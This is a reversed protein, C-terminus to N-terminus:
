RWASGVQIYFARDDPGWAYDIGVQLGLARAILYRFGVGKAFRNDADGFDTRRGWSRGVGGFGVLGWRPTAMWRIEAELMGVNLDQYRGYSIGRLDISPLQYFPVDGRVARADVRGALMWRDSLPWYGYAHGRYSEYTNDSGFAPKYATGEIMGFYGRSPTLTNDRTDYELALGLGSSRKAFDRPKFDVKDSEINLRSDIDMYIWRAAVYARTDGIRRFVQQLTFVGDLNYGVKHAPLILGQSYFDLNMSAKGIFGRYRWTDDAFHFEGGLGAGKSGNETAFAGGGYINPATHVPKGDADTAGTDKNPQFYVLAVGGGYGVAPETIVIPVPLFGHRQLLWRSVDFQQDEPDRFPHKKGDDADQALVGPATGVLGLALVIRVLRTTRM